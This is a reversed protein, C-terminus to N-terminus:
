AINEATSCLDSVQTILLMVCGIVMFTKAIASKLYKSNILSLVTWIVIPERCMMWASSLGPMFWKRMSGEIFILFLYIWFAKKYKDLSRYYISINKM